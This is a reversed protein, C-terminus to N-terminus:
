KDCPAWPQPFPGQTEKRDLTPPLRDGHIPVILELEEETTAPEEAIESVALAHEAPGEEESVGDLACGASVFAFFSCCLLSIIARSM